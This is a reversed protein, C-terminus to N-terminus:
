PSSRRRREWLSESAARGSRWDILVRDFRAFLLGVSQIASFPARVDSAAPARPRRAKRCRPRCDNAGAPTRKPPPTAAYSGLDRREGRYQRVNLLQENARAEAIPDNDHARGYRQFDNAAYPGYGCGRVPTGCALVHRNRGGGCRADTARLNSTRFLQRHRSLSRRNRRCIYRRRWDANNWRRDARTRPLAVANKRESCRDCQDLRQGAFNPGPRLWGRSIRGSRGTRESNSFISRM